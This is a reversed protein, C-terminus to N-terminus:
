EKDSDTYTIAGILTHSETTVAITATESGVM